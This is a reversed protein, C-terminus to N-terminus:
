ENSWARTSLVLRYGDPDAFTVGGAPSELDRRPSLRASSSNDSTGTRAPPSGAGAPGNWDTSSTTM